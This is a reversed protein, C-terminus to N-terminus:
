KSKKAIRAWYRSLYRVDVNLTQELNQLVVHTDNLQFAGSIRLARASKEVSIKGTHHRSLVNIFRSLPWDSVVLLGNRWADVHKPNTTVQGLSDSQWHLQQGAELHHQIATREHTSIAVSDELVNTRSFQDDTFVVFRTGLAKVQGHPTTVIFPRNQPDKHTAIYIEGRHLRVERLESTFHIDVSTQTNLELTSGDALPHSLYDGTGTSLDSDIRSWPVTQWTLAGSGGTVLLLSLLKVMDRRSARARILTQGHTGDHDTFLRQLREVQHWAYQHEHSQELWVKHQQHRPDHAPADKLDVYWQAAAEVTQPDIRSTM